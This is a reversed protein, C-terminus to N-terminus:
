GAKRSTFQTPAVPPVGAAALANRWGGFLRSAAGLLAVHERVVVGSSMSKGQSHRHRLEEVVMERTWQRRSPELGAAIVAECWTGFHKKAVSYLGQDDKCVNTIPRGAEHWKRIALIVEAKSWTRTPPPPSYHAALGAARVANAWSGFRRKAAEFLRKDGFGNININRGQVYYDQISEIVRRDTWRDDKPELGLTEFAQELSGFLRAAAGALAPDDKRVNTSLSDRHWALLEQIVREESWRRRPKPNLGAARLANQWNGFHRVAARFLPKDEKWAHSLPWGSRHHALIAEVVVQKNWRPKLM